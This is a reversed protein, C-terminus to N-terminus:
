HCFLRLMQNGGRQFEYPVPVVDATWGPPLAATVRGVHRSPAGGLAVLPFLRVERAVRCLERVAAIHFAESLQGTYLFLFHSCLALEFSQDAFPLCPLEAAIYRGAARGAEYDDLFRQMAAMRARGLEEVSAFDTWVFESRNRRTQEIVEEYTEDIRRRIETRDFAYLPDASVVECGRETAEAHFSSPGDACGLIRSVLDDATLAFMRRYEDFSRGWPVVAELSFVM